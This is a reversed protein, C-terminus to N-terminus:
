DRRALAAPALAILGAFVFAFLLLVALVRAWPERVFVMLVSGLAFAAVAAAGLRPHLPAATADAGGPPVADRGPDFRGRLVFTFLLALSPVLVLVGLAVSV